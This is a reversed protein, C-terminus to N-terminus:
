LITKICYYLEHLLSKILSFFVVHLFRSTLSQCGLVHANAVITYRSCCPSTFLVMHQEALTLFCFFFVYVLELSITLQIYRTM